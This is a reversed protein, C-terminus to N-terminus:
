PKLTEAPTQRGATKRNQKKLVTGGQLKAAAEIAAQRQPRAVPADSPM